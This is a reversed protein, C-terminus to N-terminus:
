EKIGGLRYAAWVAGLGAIGFTSFAWGWTPYNGSMVQAPNTWDLVVGFILPSIAGAGFGLLSRLGFASGLYSPNVVETLAASLVPSDGLTSFAYTLGIETKLEYSLIYPSL